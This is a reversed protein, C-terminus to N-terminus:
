PRPARGDLHSTIPGAKLAAMLTAHVDVDTRRPETAQAFIQKYGDVVFAQYDTTAVLYTAAVDLAGFETAGQRQVRVDAPRGDRVTYRLGSQQSFIDSGRHAISFALWDLLQKGTFRASAIRNTYPIAAYFDELTVDGPPLSARFSSGTSFFVDAGATQRLVGTAWNGILSEGSSVGNDRLEMTTSGLREFREPRRTHLERELQAVRAAVEPEEPRAADLPVLQGKVGRLRGGAFDLRVDSIYALYQYPAIYRTHTGPITVLPSKHHSHTGLILDIGPVARAMAEDDERRQHGIFVVADVHESARLTEVVKRATELADTWHTRPPLDGAKILTQVDPGAVAFLGVRVGGVEKVVYAQASAQFYPTDNETRLNASLIPFHVSRRCADFAPFGYDLDHNGLAMADVVGDLWPWEVCGFEDSWSPVGKNLMDGGSVILTNSDQRAARMLALARAIGGRNAQGESRFAVAHSHYDSFALIRVNTRAAPAASTSLAAIALTAACAGLARGTNV